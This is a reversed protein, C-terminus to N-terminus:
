QHTTGIEVPHNFPPFSTSVLIHKNDCDTFRGGSITINGVEGHEGNISIPAFCNGVWSTMIDVNQASGQYPELHWCVHTRDCYLGMGTTNATDGLYGPKVGNLCEEILVGTLVATDWQGLRIATAGPGLCNFHANTVWLGSGRQAELCTDFCNIQVDYIRISTVADQPNPGGAVFGGEEFYIAADGRIVRRSPIRVEQSVVCTGTLEVSGASLGDAIAQYDDVGLCAISLMLAALMM